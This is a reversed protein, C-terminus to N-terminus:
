QSLRIESARPTEFYGFFRIVGSKDGEIPIDHEKIYQDAASPRRLIAQLDQRTLTISGNTSSLTDRVEAIGNRLILGVAEGTDAFIFRVAYSLDLVKEAMLRSPMVAVAQHGSFSATIDAPSFTRAMLGLTGRTDLNGELERASTLYWNRWNINISAQGLIRFAAAKLLRAETDDPDIRILHTALEAAWQADDNKLAASAADLIKQRGGALDILRQSQEPLPTPSLAVPDGEFWGLYGVYIQRVAHEVTGYYPRLYPKYNALRPPLKVAKVLDDPRLGRNMYRITQDLIFQIGDRTMTLVEDVKKAGYVPQGHSPVLYDAKFSRLFDISNVWVQPDRFKSGRISHINPLTPGQIAEGSLLINQDPLYVAVEDPAESPVHVLRMKIGSVEVDLHNDFVDTPPIFSGAEGFTVLPGIGANMGAREEESLFAGFTYGARVAMIPGLTGGEDLLNCMLSSHAFIRVKGSKVDQESVFGKVGSIHDHHFHTYVVAVVPKTSTHRFERLIQAGVSPHLGTDVVILGDKGEIIIVNSIQYGVASYVNNGIKYIKQKFHQTHEALEPMISLDAARASPLSGAGFWSVCLVLLKAFTKWNM